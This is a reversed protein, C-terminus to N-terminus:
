LHICSSTEAKLNSIFIKWKGASLGGGMREEICKHFYLPSSIGFTFGPDGRVVFVGYKQQITPSASDKLSDWKM